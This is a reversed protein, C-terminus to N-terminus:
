ALKCMCGSRCSVYNVSSSSWRQVRCWDCNEGHQQNRHGAGRPLGTAVPRISGLEVDNAVAIGVPLRRQQEDGFRECLVGSSAEFSHDQHRPPAPVLRHM